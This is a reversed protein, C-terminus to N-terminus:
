PGGCWAHSSSVGLSPARRTTLGDSSSAIIRFTSGSVRRTHRLPRLRMRHSQVFAEVHQSKNVTQRSRSGNVDSSRAMGWACDAHTWPNEVDATKPKSIADVPRGHITPDANNLFNFVADHPQSPLQATCLHGLQEFRASIGVMDSEVQRVEHRRVHRANVRQLSHAGGARIQNTDGPVDLQLDVRLSSPQRVRENFLVAADIRRRLPACRIHQGAVSVKSECDRHQWAPDAEVQPLPGVGRGLGSARGNTCLLESYRVAPAVPRRARCRRSDRSRGSPTQVGLKKM